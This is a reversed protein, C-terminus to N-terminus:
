IRGRPTSSVPNGGAARLFAELEHHGRAQAIDAASHKEKTVVSPDAGAQLLLRTMEADGASAAGMLPTYGAVNALNVDAKMAILARLMPENRAHVAFYVATMGHDNQANVRAGRAVLARAVAVHGQRAAAMLATQGRNDKAELSAGYKLLLLVSAVSGKSAALTLGTDGHEDKTDVPVGLAILEKVMNQIPPGADVSKAAQPMIWSFDPTDEKALKLYEAAKAPKSRKLEAWKAYHAAALTLRAMGYNMIQLAQQAEDIAADPLGRNFLLFNAYNGHTWASKPDLELQARYASDAEDLKGLYVAVEGLKGHYAKIVRPAPPKLAFAAQAKRLQTEAASWQNLDMLADAWNLYLWPDDTGISEAKALTDVAQRSAGGLYYLHGLLVYVQASKPDVHRAFDLEAAAKELSGPRFNRYNIHGTILYYRAMQIRAAANRPNGKLVRELNESARALENGAGAWEDIWARAQAVLREQEDASVSEAETRAKMVAIVALTAQRSAEARHQDELHQLYSYAGAGLAAALVALLVTLRRNM